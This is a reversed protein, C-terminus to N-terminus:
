GSRRKEAAAAEIRDMVAYAEVALPPVVGRYVPEPSLDRATDKAAVMDVKDAEPLHAVYAAVGAVTFALRDIAQALKILAERTEDAMDRSSMIM